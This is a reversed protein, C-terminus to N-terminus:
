KCRTGNAQSRWLHNLKWMSVQPNGLGQAGSYVFAGNGIATEPVRKAANMALYKDFSKEDIATLGRVEVFCDDALVVQWHHWM